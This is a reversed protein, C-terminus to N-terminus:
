AHSHFRFNVLATDAVATATRMRYYVTEGTPIRRAQLRQLASASQFKTGGAFRMSTLKLHSAGYAIELEYITNEESLSEINMATLHGGQAAFVASLETAGSDVVTAWNSFTNATDLATLTCTLNTNTPFVNSDHDVAHHIDRLQHSLGIM